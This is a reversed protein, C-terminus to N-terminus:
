LTSFGAGVANGLLQTHAKSSAHTREPLTEAYGEFDQRGLLPVRSAAQLCPNMWLTSTGSQCLELFSTSFLSSSIKTSCVHAHMFMYVCYLCVTCLVRICTLLHCFSKGFVPTPSFQAHNIILCLYAHYVTLFIYVM